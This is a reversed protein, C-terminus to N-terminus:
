RTQYLMWTLPLWYSGGLHVCQALMQTVFCKDGPQVVFIDSGERDEVIPMAPSGHSKGIAQQIAGRSGLIRYLIGQKSGRCLRDSPHM